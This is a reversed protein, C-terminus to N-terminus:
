EILFPKDKRVTGGAKSGSGLDNKGIIEVYLSNSPRGRSVETANDVIPQVLFVDIWDGIDVPTSAGSLEDCNTVVAVTLVRRAPQPTGTMCKGGTNHERSSGYTTSAPGNTGNFGGWNNEALYMEYRTMGSWLASSFSSVSSPATSPLNAVVISPHYKRLYDGLPWVGNGYRTNGNADGTAQACNRGYATYHCTDRPVGMADTASAVNTMYNTLKNDGASYTQTPNYRRDAAPLEWENNKLECKAGSSPPIGTPNVNAAGQPRMLDKVQITASPCHGSACPAFVNGGAMNNPQIDFRTNLAKFYNQDQGTSPPIGVDTPTCDLPIEDFALAKILPEHSGSGDLQLFGFAGPAWGGGSGGATLQLGVGRMTEANFAGETPDCIMLPPVDCIASGISAVARASMTSFIAGVIPTFAYRATRSDVAVQVVGADADTNAVTNTTPNTYASYFVIYDRNGCQDNGTAATGGSNVTVSNGTGDNSLLTINSLLNIAAEDARSCAGDEGDLQTAAALAAQDAANQLESDMGAMRAYDFGVGGVAILGILAVAYLGAVAGSEDDAFKRIVGQM